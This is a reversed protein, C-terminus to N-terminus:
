IQYITLGTEPKWNFSSGPNIHCVNRNFSPFYTRHEIIDLENRALINSLLTLWVESNKSCIYIYNTQKWKVTLLCFMLAIVQGKDSRGSGWKVKEHGESSRSRIKVIFYDSSRLNYRSLIVGGLSKCISRRNDLPQPSSHQHKPQKPRNFKVLEWHKENLLM